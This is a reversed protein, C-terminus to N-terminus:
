WWALGRKMTNCKKTHLRGAYGLFGDERYTVRGLIHLVVDQSKADLVLVFDVLFDDQLQTPRTVFEDSLDKRTDHLRFGGVLVQTALYAVFHAGQHRLQPATVHMEHSAHLGVLVFSVTFEVLLDHEVLYAVQTHQLRELHALLAVGHTSGVLLEVLLVTLHGVIAGVGSEDLLMSIEHQEHGLISNHLM